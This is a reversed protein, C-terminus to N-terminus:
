IKEREVLRARCKLGTFAEMETQAEVLAKMEECEEKTMDGFSVVDGSPIMILEWIMESQCGFSQACAEDVFPLEDDAYLPTVLMLLSATLLFAITKM